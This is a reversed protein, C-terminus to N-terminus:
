VVKGYVKEINEITIIQNSALEEFDVLLFSSGLSIKKFLLYLMAESTFLFGKSFIEKEIDSISEIKDYSHAILAFYVKKIGRREEIRRKADQIYKIIARKDSASLFYNSRNKCDYVIAFDKSYAIGDPYEGEKKHGLQEVEFGLANFIEAIRDEYDNNSITQLIDQFHKGIWNQWSLASPPKAELLKQWEPPPKIGFKELVFLVREEPVSFFLNRIGIENLLMSSTIGQMKSVYHFDFQPEGKENETINKIILFCPSQATFDRDRGKTYVGVGVLPLTNKLHQVPKISKRPYPAVKDSEWYDGRWFTCLVLVEKM